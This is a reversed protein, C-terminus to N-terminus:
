RRAKTEAWHKWHLYRGENNWIPETWNEGIQEFLQRATEQDGAISAMLCYTNLNWRSKPYQKQMAQFGQRIRPWSFHYEQFLRDQVIRQSQDFAIRAYISEGEPSLAVAQEAFREVDGPKGHWRPMLCTAKEFYIPHYAPESQISRRFIEEYESQPRGQARTVLLLEAYNQPDKIEMKDAAELYARARVLRERFLRWGEETVNKAYDTGRAEWAYGIYSSGLVILPTVSQPKAAKWEELAAFYGSWNKPASRGEPLSEVARYFWELKWRGSPFRLKQTRYELALKELEDWNKNQLLSKFEQSVKERQRGESVTFDDEQAAAALTAVSSCFFCLICLRSMQGRHNTLKM